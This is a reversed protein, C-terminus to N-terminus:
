RDLPQFLEAPAERMRAPPEVPALQFALKAPQELAVCAGCPTIQDIQHLMGGPGRSNIEPPRRSRLPVFPGPLALAAVHQPGVDAVPIGLLQPSSVNLEALGLGREANMLALQRDPGDPMLALIPDLGM